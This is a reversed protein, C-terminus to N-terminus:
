VFLIRVVPLLAPEFYELFPTGVRTARLSHEQTEVNVCLDIRGIDCDTQKVSVAIESLRHFDSGAAALIRVAIRGGNASHEAHHIALAANRLEPALRQLRYPVAIEFSSVNRECLARKIGVVLSELQDLSVSALHVSLTHGDRLKVYTNKRKLLVKHIGIRHEAVLLIGPHFFLVFEVEASVTEADPTIQYAQAADGPVVGVPYGLLVDAGLHEGEGLLIVIIHSFDLHPDVSLEVLYGKKRHPASGALQFRGPLVAHRLSAVM